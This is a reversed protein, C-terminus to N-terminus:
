QSTDVVASLGSGVNGEVVIKNKHKQMYEAYLTRYQAMLSNDIEGGADRFSNIFMEVAQAKQLYTYKGGALIRAAAFAIDHLESSGPPGVYEGLPDDLSPNETKRWLTIAASILDGATPRHIASRSVIADECINLWYKAPMERLVDHRQRWAAGAMDADMAKWHHALTKNWTSHFDQETM